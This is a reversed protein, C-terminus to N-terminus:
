NDQGNTARIEKEIITRIAGPSIKGTDEEAVKSTNIVCYLGDITAPPSPLRRTFNNNTSATANQTLQTPGGKSRQGAVAAWSPTPPSATLTSVQSQLSDVQEQLVANQRVLQQQEEKIEALDARIFEITDNQKKIVSTQQTITKKLNLILSALEDFGTGRGEGESAFGFRTTEKNGVRATNDNRRKEHERPRGRAEARSPTGL